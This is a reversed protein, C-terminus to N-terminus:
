HCGERGSVKINIYPSGKGQNYAVSERRVSCGITNASEEVGKGADAIREDNSGTKRVAGTASHECQLQKKEVKKESEANLQLKLKKVVEEREAVV